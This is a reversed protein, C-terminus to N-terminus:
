KITKLISFMTVAWVYLKRNKYRIRRLAHSCLLSINFKTCGFIRSIEVMKKGSLLYLMAQFEKPTCCEKLQDIYLDVPSQYWERFFKLKDTCKKFLMSVTGQSYNLLFGIDSQRKGSIYSPYHEFVKRERYSFYCKRVVEIVAHDSHRKGSLFDVIDLITEFPQAPSPM